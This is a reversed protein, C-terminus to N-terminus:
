NCGPLRRLPCISGWKAQPLDSGSFSHAVMLEPSPPSLLCSALFFCIRCQVQERGCRRRLRGPSGQMAGPCSRMSRPEAGRPPPSQYGRSGQCGNGLFGSTLKAPSTLSAPPAAPFHSQVGSKEEFLSFAEPHDWTSNQCGVTTGGLGMATRDWSQPGRTLCSSLHGPAFM